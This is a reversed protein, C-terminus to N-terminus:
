FIKVQLQILYGIFPDVENINAFATAGIGLRKALDIQFGIEVPLGWIQSTMSHIQNDAQKQSIYRGTFLHDSYSIGTALYLSNDKFSKIYGCLIKYEKVQYNRESIPAEDWGNEMRVILIKHHNRLQAGISLLMYDDFVRAGDGAGWGGSVWLSPKHEDAQALLSSFSFLLLCTLITYFPSRM